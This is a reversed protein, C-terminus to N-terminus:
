LLSWTHLCVVGLSTQWVLAEIDPRLSPVPKGNGQAGKRGCVVRELPAWWSDTAVFYHILGLYTIWSKFLGTATFFYLRGTYICWELPKLCNLSGSHQKIWGTSLPIHEWGGLCPCPWVVEESFTELAEAHWGAVERSLLMPNRGM